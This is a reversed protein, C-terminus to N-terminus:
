ISNAPKSARRDMRTQLVNLEFELQSRMERDADGPSPDIQLSNLALDFARLVRALEPWEAREAAKVYLANRQRMEALVEARGTTDVGDLETLRRETEVLYAQMANVMAPAPSAGSNAAVSDAPAHVEVPPLRTAIFVGVSLLLGAALVPAFLPRLALLRRWPGSLLAPNPGGAHDQGAVTSAMADAMADDLAARWRRHAAAPAKAQEPRLVGLEVELRQLRLRLGADEDLRKEIWRIRRGSLGDRYHFLLLERDDIM